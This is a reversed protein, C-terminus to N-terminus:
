TSFIHILFLHIPTKILGLLFKLVEDVFFVVDYAAFDVDTLYGTVEDWYLCIFLSIVINRVIRDLNWFYM